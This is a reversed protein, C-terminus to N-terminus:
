GFAHQGRRRQATDAALHLAPQHEAIVIFAGAGGLPADLVQVAFIVQVFQDRAIHHEGGGADRIAGHQAAHVAFAIEDGGFANHHARGGPRHAPYAGTVAPTSSPLTSFLAAAKPTARLKEPRRQNSFDTSSVISRSNSRSIEGTSDRNSANRPM